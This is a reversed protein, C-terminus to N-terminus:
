FNLLSVRLAGRSDFHLRAHLSPGSQSIRGRRRLVMLNREPARVVVDFHRTLLSADREEQITEPRDVWRALGYWDAIYEIPTDDVIYQFLRNDRRAQLAFPNVKGDLNITRDHFYGLTGSQPAGVWVDPPVHGTVWEVVHGHDHVASRAHFRWSWWIMLATLGAVTMVAAMTVLPVDRVTSRRAFVWVCPVLVAALSLPFLYRSLFYAAGFFIGYYVTLLAGHSLLLAIWRDITLGARRARVMTVAVLCVAAAATLVAWSTSQGLWAPLPTAIWVYEALVRPVEVLNEGTNLNLNQARGSVPVVHGFVRANYLLWPSAVVVSALAAVIGDAIRHRTGREQVGQSRGTGLLEAVLYVLIFFVADNRILFLLGLFAGMAVARTITRHRWHMDLLLFAAIGCVYFGTELGNTTHRIALPSAFWLAGALVAAVDRWPFSRFAGRALFAVLVATLAAIVFEVVVVGRLAPVRESEVLWHVGAWIFTVLPQVGNTPITGEAITLSRGLAVNRAVTLMLYGDESVAAVTRQQSVLPALRVATGALLLAGILAAFLRRELPM